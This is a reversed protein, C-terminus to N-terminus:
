LVNEIALREARLLTTTAGRMGGEDDDAQEDLRAADEILMNVEEYRAKLLERLAQTPFDAAEAATGGLPVVLSQLTALAQSLTERPEGSTTDYSFLSLRQFPGDGAAAPAAEVAGLQELLESRVPGFAKPLAAESADILDRVDFLVVAEPNSPLCFGYQLLLKLNDCAGYTFFVQEGAKHSDQSIVRWCCGPSDPSPVRELTTRASARHNILDLAPLLARRRGSSAHVLESEPELGDGQEASVEVSRARVHSFACLFQDVSMPASGASRLATSLVDFQELAFQVTQNAANAYCRPLLSVDDSSLRLVSPQTSPLSDAYDSNAQLECHIHLTLLMEDTLKRGSQAAAEAAAMANPNQELVREATVVDADDISILVDGPARDRKTALGRGTLPFMKTELDSRVLRQSLYTGADCATVALFVLLLLMIIFGTVM